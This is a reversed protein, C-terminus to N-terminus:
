KLWKYIPTFIIAFAVGWMVAGFFPLRIWIFAATVVALLALFVGRQLQPSNM